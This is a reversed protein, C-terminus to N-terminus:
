YKKINTYGYFKNNKLKSKKNLKVKVKKKNVTDKTESGIRTPIRTPYSM